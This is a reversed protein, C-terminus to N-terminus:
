SKLKSMEGDFQPDADVVAPFRRDFYQMELPTGPEAYEVPLYAYAMCEEYVSELLGPGMCRHVEIATGIILESLKNEHM